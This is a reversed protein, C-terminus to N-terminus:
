KKHFYPVKYKFTYYYYVISLLLSSATIGGIIDSFYHVGLYIRSFMVLIALISLLITLIVKLEKKGKGQWLYFIFLSSIVVIIMTHGSPFSYNTETVIQNINPRNRAIILKLSQNFLVTFLTIFVFGVGRGKKKSFISIAIIILSLGIVFIDSAFFSIFKFIQNNVPNILKSVHSYIFNDIYVFSNTKVLIIETILLFILITIIIINTRKKM